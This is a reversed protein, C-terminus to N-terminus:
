GGFPSFADVIHEVVRCAGDAGQQVWVIDFRVDPQREYRQLYKGAASCLFMQKRRDVAYPAALLADGSRTKVEVFVVRGNKEAILDIERHAYRYNAELIRYGNAQLYAAALVEGALGTRRAAKWGEPDRFTGVVESGRKKVIMGATKRMM